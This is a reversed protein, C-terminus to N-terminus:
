SGSCRSCFFGGNSTFIGNCCSRSWWFLLYISIKKSNRRNILLYFTSEVLFGAAAGAVDGVVDDVAGACVFGLVVVGVALDVDDKALVDVFTVFFVVVVGLPPLLPALFFAL